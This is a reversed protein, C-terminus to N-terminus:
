NGGPSGAADTSTDELWKKKDTVYLVLHFGGWPRPGALEILCAEATARSILLWHVGQFIASQDGSGGQLSLAWSQDSM